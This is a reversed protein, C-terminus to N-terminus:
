QTNSEDTPPTPLRALLLDADRAARESQQMKKHADAIRENGENVNKEAAKWRKAVRELADKEGEVARSSEAAGLGSVADVYDRRVSELANQGQRILAEGEAIMRQGRTQLEESKIQLEMAALRIEQESADPGPKGISACGATTLIVLLTLLRTM